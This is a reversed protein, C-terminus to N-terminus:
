SMKLKIEQNEHDTNMFHDNLLKLENKLKKINSM